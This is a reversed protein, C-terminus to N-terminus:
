RANSLSPVLVTQIQLQCLLNYFFILHTKQMIGNRLLAKFFLEVKHGEKLVLSYSSYSAKSVNAGWIQM